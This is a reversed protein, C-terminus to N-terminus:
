CKLSGGLSLNIVDKQAQVYSEPTGIDRLYEEVVYGHMRGVLQPLLDCGIDAPTKAPLYELTRLSCWYIGANALNSRPAAPKEVFDVIRRGEDMEAIGCAAPNAARFLGMTLLSDMRRHAERMAGLNVNTLNDAYLIAFSEEDAVFDRNANLTGASGLLFPEYVLHIRLPWERSAIFSRVQDAHHHLNVLVDSIGHHECLSFWYQLLPKGSLPLLCKATVDTLPRLRTGKGAALLFAKSM